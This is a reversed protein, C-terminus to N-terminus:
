SQQLYNGHVLTIGTSYKDHTTETGGSTRPNAAHVVSAARKEVNALPTDFYNPVDRKAYKTRDELNRTLV